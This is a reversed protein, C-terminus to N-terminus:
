FEHPEETGEVNEAGEPQAPEHAPEPREPQALRDTGNRSRPAPRESLAPGDETASRNYENMAQELGDEIASRVLPLARAVTAEFDGFTEANMQQLVFSHALMRGPPRGIGIRLRAYDPGISQHLSRLGNHGAHGGGCKFRLVGAPLDLEDHVILVDDIGFGYRGMLGKVPGGSVNMFSQPKALVIDEGRYRTEGVLANAATKWYSVGLEAAFADIVAFGANHRTREFKQGPNGLGVIFHPGLLAM